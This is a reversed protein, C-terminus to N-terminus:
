FLLQELETYSTVQYTPMIDKQAEAGHQNLWCTDLGAKNGGIIDSHLNDGVMLVKSKEPSGMEKLAHEFIDIHPKAVGVQESVVLLDFHDSLSNYELRVAQLETFGNTIIGLKVQPRLKDLLKVVGSFPKCVESMAQMFASNLSLEDMNLREAWIKFRERKLIDASIIHAQYQQWLVKNVKQYQQFDYETFGVGFSSFM